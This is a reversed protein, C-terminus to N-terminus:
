KPTLLPFADHTEREIWYWTEHTWITVDTQGRKWLEYVTKAKDKVWVFWGYGSRATQAATLVSFM